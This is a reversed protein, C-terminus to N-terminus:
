GVIAAYLSVGFAVLVALASLAAGIAGIVLIVILLVEQLSSPKM